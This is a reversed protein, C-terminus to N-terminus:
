FTSRRDPPNAEDLEAELQAVRLELSDINKQLVREADAYGQEYSEECQAEIDDMDVAAALADLKDILIHPAGFQAARFRVDEVFEILPQSSYTKM